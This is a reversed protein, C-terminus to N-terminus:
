LVEGAMKRSRHAKRCKKFSAKREKVRQSSYTAKILDHFGQRLSEPSMKKPQFTVDFLTCQEWFRKKLLRGEQQLSRFLGTGPFPTLLTLQVDSLKSEQIFNNTIEFISEDDQDFGLIFCGNVSIGYSQIIEIKELYNDFLRRKWDKPDIGKLSAPQASELGVLVQVCNSAALLELLEKDDALSLDTETFWKLPYSSFLELLKKSWNKNVFTNDDALELFPRDWLSIIIDLEKRIQEIPKLQYSSIMRSAACFSCDVPCGRSTQLTIRNYNHKKILDYRPSIYHDVKAPSSTKNMEQYIPKLKGEEFDSLVSRWLLEGQGVVVSDCYSMAEFPVASVHLGGLIVSIGSLKIKLAIKYAEEAVATLTSIAVLDFKGNLIFRLSNENFDGIEQYVPEWNLPCYAALTLLSLSPLRSITRVREQFGPLTLGLQGLVPDEVRVGGMALFLVRYNKTKM